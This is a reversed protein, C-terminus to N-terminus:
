RPRGHVPSRYRAKSPKDLGAALPGEAPSRPGLMFAAGWSVQYLGMYSGRAHAPALDSIISASLPLVLMEGITWIAIACAYHGETVAVANLFFGLGYLLAGVALVRLRDVGSLWSGISPQLLVILVPNITILEGFQRASLGHRGMDVPLNTM